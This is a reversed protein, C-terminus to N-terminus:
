PRGAGRYPSIPSTNSFVGTVRAYIAPTTYPGALGGLNNTCSHLGYSSVYAGVDAITNVRLALFHGEDNLALEANTINDRAHHDASFAESRECQWRVPRRVKRAGWLVLPLEPFIGLKLGFSGGCDPSIIRLQSEPIRLVHQALETKLTHPEQTGTYLTYREPGPDYLGIANRPEMPSASVRTIELDLKVTHKAGRFAADVKKREGVEYVFCINDPAEEWVASRHPDSRKGIVPELPEYEVQILEAAEKALDLTEAVIGAVADGVHRVRDTALIRYPPTINPRGNPLHRQVRSPITGFGEVLAEKGTLVALVGPLRV